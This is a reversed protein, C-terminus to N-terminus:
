LLSYDRLCREPRTRVSAIINEAGALQRAVRVIGDYAGRLDSWYNETSTATPGYPWYYFHKAGQGLDSSTNLVLNTEDSPTIWAIIPLNGRSGSRFIAAQFGMLQFGEWTYRPGYMYQLGMWDEIGIVDVARQRALDFWDLALPYGGWAMNPEDMGMGLGTGAFYPHDAVLSS